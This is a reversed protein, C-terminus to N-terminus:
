LQNKNVQFFLKEYVQCNNNEAMQKERVGVSLDPDASSHEIDGHLPRQFCHAYETIRATSRDSSHIPTVGQQYRFIIGDPERVQIFGSGFICHVGQRIAVIKLDSQVYAGGLQLFHHYPRTIVPHIGDLVPDIIGFSKIEPLGPDSTRDIRITSNTQIDIFEDVHEAKTAIAAHQTKLFSQQTFFCVTIDIMTKILRENALQSAKRSSLQIGKYDSVPRIKIKGFRCGVILKLLVDLKGEGM